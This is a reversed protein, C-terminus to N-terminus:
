WILTGAYAFFPSRALDAPETWPDALNPVPDVNGGLRDGIARAHSCTAPTTGNITDAPPRCLARFGPVRLAGLLRVLSTHRLAAALLGAFGYPRGAMRLFAAAAGLRDYEPWRGQPNARFWDIRGSYREVQSSLTVARGGGFVMGVSLLVHGCWVASEVHSYTGRGVAAILRGHLRGPRWLLLDASRIQDRVDAYRRVDSGAPRSPTPTAVM